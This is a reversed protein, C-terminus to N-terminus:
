GSNLGTQIHQQVPTKVPIGRCADQILDASRADCTFRSTRLQKLPNGSLQKPFYCIPDDQIPNKEDSVWNRLWLTECDCNLPNGPFFSVHTTRPCIFSMKWNFINACDGFASLVIASFQSFVFNELIKKWSHKNVHWNHCLCFRSSVWSSICKNAGNITEAWSSFVQNAVFIGEPLLM